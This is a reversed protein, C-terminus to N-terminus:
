PAPRRAKRQELFEAMRRQPEGSAYALAHWRHGAKLADQFGPESRERLIRKNLRMAVPPKDALERALALATSVVEGSPVLHHVLGLSHAETGSMMRGSLIMETARSIGVHQELLWLGLPSPLGSNIEPQGLRSDPSAVRVDTLLAVQFASGAAVGRIAAVIPKDLQRVTGYLRRWEEVWWDSQEPRFSASENLDQGASFAREGAGTLVVSRVSGDSGVEELADILLSRMSADWANMREPRNLTILAVQDLRDVLITTM